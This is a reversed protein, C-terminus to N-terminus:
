ETGNGYNIRVDGGVTGNVVVNGDGMPAVPKTSESSKDGGGKLWGNHDAVLYLGGASAVGVLIKGWNDALFSGDDAGVNVGAGVGGVLPVLKPHVSACGSMAMVAMVALLNGVRKM